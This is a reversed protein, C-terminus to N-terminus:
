SVADFLMGVVPNLVAAMPYCLTFFRTYYLSEEAGVMAEAQMQLTGLYFNFWFCSVVGLVLVCGFQQSCIQGLLSRQQLELKRKAADDIQKQKQFMESMQVRGM